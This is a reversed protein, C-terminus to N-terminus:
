ESSLLSADIELTTGDEFTLYEDIKTKNDVIFDLIINNLKLPLKDVVTKKEYVSINNFDLVTKGIKVSEIFKIIEYTLLLNVADTNKQADSLKSLTNIVRKNISTDTILTPIVLNCTIGGHKVIKNTTFQTYDLDGLDNLDYTTDNINITESLSLKRLNIIISIKDIINFEYDEKSNEVIFDNYLINSNVIGEVGEFATKILSKQQNVNFLDFEIADGKSPVQLAAANNESAKDLESLFDKVNV